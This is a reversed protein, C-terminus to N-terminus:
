LDILKEYEEFELKGSFLRKSTEIVKASIEDTFGLAIAYKHVLRQEKENIYHDAYIIRFLDYLFELRKKAKYPPVLDTTGINKIILDYEDGSIDLKDALRKLVSIEEKNLTGDVLALHVLAAFHSVNNIHKGSEFLEKISM